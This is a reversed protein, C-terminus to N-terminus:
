IGILWDFNVGLTSSKQKFNKYTWLKRCFKLPGGNNKQQQKVASFNGYITWFECRLGSMKETLKKYRWLKRSLKLARAHCTLWEGVWGQRMVDTRGDMCRGWFFNEKTIPAERLMSRSIKTNKLFHLKWSMRFIHFNWAKKFNIKFDGMVLGVLFFQLCNRLLNQITKRDLILSTM